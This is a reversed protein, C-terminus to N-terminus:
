SQDRLFREVEAAIQDGTPLPGGFGSAPPRGRGTLEADYLAELQRIHETVEDSSAAAVDLKARNETVAGDLVTTDIPMELYGAMRELLTRAAEPYEGAVYHPVRAWLGVTVLGADRLVTELVVQYSAPVIVSEHPRGIQDLLDPDSSTCILQVPRTHPIPGPVSGLGLYRRIGLEGAIHVVEASLTQWAFDPEGGTLLVLQPGDVPRLLELTLGPWDPTGLEGRDIHLLPRRDRYDFLRDPAFIGLLESDYADRLTEAATTGGTGADTWGDLAVVLAPDGDLPSLTTAPQFLEM